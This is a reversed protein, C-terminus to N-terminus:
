DLRTITGDQAVRVRAEAGGSGRVTLALTGDSERRTTVGVDEAAAAPILVSVIGAQSGESRFAVQTAEERVQEEPYHWGRHGHGGSDDHEGRHLRIGDEAVGAGDLRAQVITTAEGREADVARVTDQGVREAAYEAPLNWLTEIVPDVPDGAIATRDVVVAADPGTLVLVSRAREGGATLSQRAAAGDASGDASEVVATREAPGEGPFEDLTPLHIVNHATPGLGWPRWDDQVIGPHGGDEVIQRGRASYLFQLLDGRHAKKERGTGTRLMWAAEDRFGDEADGWSSRGFVPGNTFALIRQPPAIGEEGDTAAYRLGDGAGEFPKVPFEASDGYQWFAGTSDVMHPLARGMLAVRDASVTSPLGCRRSTEDLDQFLTYNFEAYHPAAENSLGQEDVQHPLDAEVRAMAHDMWEPRGLVCGAGLLAKNEMSGHNHRQSYRGKNQQAHQEMVEDLWAYEQPLTGDEPLVGRAAAREAVVGRFCLLVNMRHHNAEADDPDDGWGGRHDAVWDRIVRDAVRFADDDGDRAAEISPGIWRLSSLWLRWGADGYPDAAWDVDGRGDGVQAPPFAAWAYVDEANTEASNFRTLRGYGTCPYLEAREV